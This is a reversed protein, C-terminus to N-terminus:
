SNNKVSAYFENYTIIRLLLRVHLTKNYLHIIILFIILMKKKICIIDISGTNYVIIQERIQVYTTYFVVALIEM